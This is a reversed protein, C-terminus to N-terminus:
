CATPRERLNIGGVRYMDIMQYGTSWGIGSLNINKSDPSLERCSFVLCRDSTNVALSPEPLMCECASQRLTANKPFKWSDCKVRGVFIAFKTALIAWIYGFNLIMSIRFSEEICHSWFNTGLILCPSPSRACAGSSLNAHLEFNGFVSSKCKVSGGNISWPVAVYMAKYSFTTNKSDVSMERRSSVLSQGNTSVMPSPEPRM